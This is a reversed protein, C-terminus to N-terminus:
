KNADWVVYERVPWFNPADKPIVELDFLPVHGIRRGERVKVMVGNRGYQGELGIVHMTHGLRFLERKAVDAFYADDEDDTRKAVFPFALNEKLWIMWDRKVWEQYKEDYARCSKPFNGKPSRVLNWSSDYQEKM